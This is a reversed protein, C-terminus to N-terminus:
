IIIINNDHNNIQVYTGKKFNNMHNWKDAFIVCFYVFFPWM